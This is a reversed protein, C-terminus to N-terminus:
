IKKTVKSRLYNYYESGSDKKIIYRKLVTQRAESGMKERAEKSQILRELKEQWEDETRATYGDVGDTIADLYPATASAITPVGVIGAEFWKLESKSECFPNGIELPALNIDTEAINRFHASRPAFPIREIQATYSSLITDTDLPGTLVLRIHPYQDLLKVLVPTIVAFDKNHSPTGSFYAIRIYADERKRERMAQEADSIDQKALKNKIVFVQKGRERLKSALYETSTTCVRVYPDALIEGGVGNEYLKREFTNMKQFYDMHQLFEKDYVLDDTEFIIEKSLLKIAEILKAVSPTYLVRHFVFVSFKGAYTVLFPNDQVTTDCSFGNCILEEAVHKTRYRASDGVGGTIFLIDGPHVRHFLALFSTMIRKGGRFLGDRKLTQWAKGVKILLLKM